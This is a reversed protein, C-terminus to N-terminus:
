FLKIQRENTTERARKQEDNVATLFFSNWHSFQRQNNTVATNIDPSIQSTAVRLCSEFREDDIQNTHPNKRPISRQFWSSLCLYLQVPNYRCRSMRCRTQLTLYETTGILEGDNVMVNYKDTIIVRTQLSLFYETGKMANYGLEVTRGFFVRRKGSM